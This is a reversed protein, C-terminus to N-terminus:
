NRIILPTFCIAFLFVVLLVVIGWWAFWHWKETLPFDIPIAQTFFYNPMYEISVLQGNDYIPSALMSNLYLSIFGLLGLIGLSSFMHRIRFRICGSIAIYLGITILMTHFLFYQYVRPSTFIESPTMDSLYTPLALAFLAGLVCTPYMFALVKERLKENNTFRVLFILILQVSCLHFPLHRVDLYLYTISGDSSPVAHSMTLIKIIESIVCIVCAVSLVTKLQINKRKVIFLVLAAALLSIGILLFHSVNFM